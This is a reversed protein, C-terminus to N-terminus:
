VPSNSYQPPGPPGPPPFPACGFTFPPRIQNTILFTVTHIDDAKSTWTIDEGAHIWIENPLFALAQRSKDGSQAGLTTHWQAQTVVPFILLAFAVTFMLRAAMSTRFPKFTKM